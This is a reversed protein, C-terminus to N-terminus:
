PAEKLPQVGDQPASKESLKRLIELMGYTDLGCYEELNARVAAREAPDADMPLVRLFEAGATMGDGIALDDYDHNTLLPLVIKLSWRGDLNPHRIAKDRVPVALDVLRPLLADVWAAHEPLAEAAETLRGKEFSTSYAMVSGTPGIAKRLEDFMANRPDGTGDWLWSVHQPEADLREVVHLSFQFPIKQWPRSEDFKPIATAITEFDLMYVPWTLSNLFKRILPPDYEVGVKPENGAAAMEAEWRAAWCQEKLPCGYPKDCHPGIEVVPCTELAIVRQMEFIRDAVGPLLPTVADTVDESTFLGHPDIEGHRVYQNNVHMLHCRRVPIGATEYCYRQLAVDNLYQPKMGSSSKVEVIDWRGDDVPNLIDARAFAGGASFTAEYIPMRVRLLDKSVRLMAGFDEHNWPVLTGGPFCRQALLGVDDGQSFVAQTGSDVEPIDEKANFLTWLLKHCRLGSQYKSKSIPRDM